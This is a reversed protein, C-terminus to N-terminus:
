HTKSNPNTKPKNINKNSPNQNMNRREQNKGEEDNNRILNVSNVQWTDRPKYFVFRIKVPNKLYKIFYTCNCYSASVQEKEVLEYGCYVGNNNHATQLNRTLRAYLSSDAKLNPGVSIIYDVAQSTNEGEFYSFFNGSISEPTEQSFGHQQYVIALVFLLYIKKM